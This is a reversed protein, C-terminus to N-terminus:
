TLQSNWNVVADQRFKGQSIQFVKLSLLILWTITDVFRYSYPYNRSAVQKVEATATLNEHCTNTDAVLICELLIRVPRKNVKDRLARQPIDAQLHRGLPHRGPPHRGPPNNTQPHRRSPPQRTPHSHGFSHQSVGRGRHVSNKVSAQSFM